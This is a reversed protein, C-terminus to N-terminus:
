LKGNLPDYASGGSRLGGSSSSSRHPASASPSGHVSKVKAAHKDSRQKDAALLANKMDDSFQPAAAKPADTAAVPPPPAPAAVPAAPPPPNTAAKLTSLTLADTAQAGAATTHPLSAVLSAAGGTAAFAVSGGVVALAAAVLVYRGRKKPRFMDEDDLDYPGPLPPISAVMPAVSLPASRPPVSYAPVPARVPAAAVQRSQLAAPRVPAPDPEADADDLGAVERLTIWKNDGERCVYTNEHIRNAQFAADLQELSMLEVERSDFQVYYRDEAEEQM